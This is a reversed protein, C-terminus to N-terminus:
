SHPGVAEWGGDCQIMVMQTHRGAELGEGPFPQVKNRKGM